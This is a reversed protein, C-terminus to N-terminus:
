QSQAQSPPILRYGVGHWNEIQYGRRRLRLILRRVAAKPDSIMYPYLKAEIQGAPIFGPPPAERLIQLLSLLRPTGM